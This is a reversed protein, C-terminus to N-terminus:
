IKDAQKGGRKLLRITEINSGTRLCVSSGYLGIAERMIRPGCLCVCLTVWLLVARWSTGSRCCCRHRWTSSSRSRSAVPNSWTWSGTRPSDRFRLLRNLGKQPSSSSLSPALQCDIGTEKEYPLDLLISSRVLELRGVDQDISEGSPLVNDLHEDTRGTRREEGPEIRSSVRNGSQSM